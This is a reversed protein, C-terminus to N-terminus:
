SRFKFEYHYLNGEMNTNLKIRINGSRTRINTVDIVWPGLLDQRTIVLIMGLPASTHQVTGASAPLAERAITEEINPLFLDVNREYISSSLEYGSKFSEILM